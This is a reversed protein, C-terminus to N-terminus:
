LLVNLSIKHIRMMLSAADPLPAQVYSLFFGTQDSCLHRQCVICHPMASPEAQAHSRSSNM